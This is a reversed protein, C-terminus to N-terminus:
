PTTVAYRLTRSTTAVWLGGEGDASAAIAPEPPVALLQEGGGRWGIIGEPALAALTGDGLWALGAVAARRWRRIALGPGLVVIGHRDDSVAVREDPGVALHRPRPLPLKLPHPAEPWDGPLGSGLVTDIRGAGDVKRVRRFDPDVIWAADGATALAEPRALQAGVARARDGIPLFATGSGAFPVPSGSPNPQWRWVRHRAPEALLLTGAPAITLGEIKGLNGPLPLDKILWSPGKRQQAHWLQGSSTLGFLEGRGAAVTTATRALAETQTLRPWSEGSAQCAVLGPFTTSVLALTFKLVGHHGPTASPM